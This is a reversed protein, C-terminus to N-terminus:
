KLRVLDAPKYTKTHLKGSPEVLTIMREKLSTGYDIFKNYCNVADLANDFNQVWDKKGDVLVIVSYQTKM